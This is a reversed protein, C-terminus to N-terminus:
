FELILRGRIGGAELARHAEAAREAPLTRAVRLTVEGSEAQERLRDLRAQERAYSRVFVPHFTIGREDSGVGQYGRVTAIRGGDRVAPTALENLLAADVLGDAGAPLVERM